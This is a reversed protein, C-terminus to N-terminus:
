FEKNDYEKQAMFVAIEHWYDQVRDVVFDALNIKASDNTPLTYSAQLYSGLLMADADSIQSLAETVHSPKFPNCESKLMDRVRSEVLDARKDAVIEKDHYRNLDENFSSM